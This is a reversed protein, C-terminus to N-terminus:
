MQSLGDKPQVNGRPSSTDPAGWGPVPVNARRRLATFAAVFGLLGGVFLPLTFSRSAFMATRM